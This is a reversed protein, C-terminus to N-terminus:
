RSYTVAAADCHLTQTARKAELFVMKGEAAAAATTGRQRALANSLCGVEAPPRPDGTHKAPTITVTVPM